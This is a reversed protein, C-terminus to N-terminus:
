KNPDFVDISDSILYEILVNNQEADKFKAERSRSRGWPEPRPRSKPRLHKAENFTETM